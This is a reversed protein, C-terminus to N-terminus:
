KAQMPKRDRLLPGVALDEDLLPWHIGIGAPLLEFVKRQLANAAALRESCERWPIHYEGDLTEIVLGTRNANVGVARVPAAKMAVTNM